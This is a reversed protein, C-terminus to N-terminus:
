PNFRVALPTVGDHFQGHSYALTGNVWTQEVAFSTRFGRYPTWRCTSLADADSIEHEPAHPNVVVVDAWFHPQLSGRRDVHYLQAPGSAFREVVQDYTLQKERALQLLLPLAFQVGPMGSAATLADGQKDALLHPAHDTGLTNIRGDILADLLARRDTGEKIAPNCKTRGHSAAVSSADLLLYHPCTEATIRKAGVPGPTFFRLEEATTVHLVHLRCGTRQALEVARATSAVCAERSRIRSHYMLPLPQDAPACARLRRINERIIEPDEAHVAILGHFERFLRELADPRDFLMDGTSAGLFVKVGPTYTYDAGLIQDLNHPTAGLYFAYNALSQQAAIDMKQQWAEITTTQPRTNPMDFFTTVGGALAARSESAIDGKETMGPTRFHVHEDIMGPMVWRDRCDVLTYEDPNVASPDTHGAEVAKILGHEVVVSGIFRIPGSFITGNAFIVPKVVPTNQLM